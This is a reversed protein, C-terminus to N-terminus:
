VGVQVPHTFTLRQGNAASVAIELLLRGDHNRQTQIDIASARGDDLLGQLAQESYQKALVSVRELDKERQLEHLRSGLLPEAWYSGLPTLIRLVIANMLAGSSDRQAAGNGVTYDGTLPSIAIATM